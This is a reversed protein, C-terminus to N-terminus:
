PQSMKTQVKAMEFNIFHYRYEKANENLDRKKENADKELWELYKKAQLVGLQDLTKGTHKGFPIKYRQWDMDIQQGGADKMPARSVQDGAWAPEKEEEGAGVLVAAQRENELREARALVRASTCDEAALLEAVDELVKKPVKESAPVGYGKMILYDLEGGNVGRAHMLERIRQDLESAEDKPQNFYEPVHSPAPLSTRPPTTQPNAAVGSAIVANEAQAMEDSTYLGSLDNPFARRLALAEACKGLMLDCMKRWMHTPKGDRDTQCYAGWRAVSWIPHLFGKKYVGVKAAAPAANANLWADTWKGDPGCWFPGEQGQYDGTREAVVRLGDISTQIEMKKKWAGDRDKYRREIMYIQRVFPDLGTRKCVAFFLSLEDDTAGIAITNKILTKQEETFDQGHQQM